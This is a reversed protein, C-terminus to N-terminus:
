VPGSSVIGMRPCQDARDMKPLSIDSDGKQRLACRFPSVVFSFRTRARRAQFRHPAFTRSQWGRGHVPKYKKRRRSRCHPHDGGAPLEVKLFPKRRIRVHTLKVETLSKGESTVLTTVTAREAIAALVSSDPFRTWELAFRRPNRPSATIAFRPKAALLAFSRASLSASGKHRAAKLVGSEKATLELTGQGEV